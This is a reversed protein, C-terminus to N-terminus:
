FFPVSSCIQLDPIFIRVYLISGTLSSSPPTLQSILISTYVSSSSSFQQLQAQSKTVRHVTTQWAGRDMPNKLCSCQLSNGNGGGTSRRSGPILSLAGAAGANCASEKSSLWQLLGVYVSGHTFCLALPLKIYLETRVPLQLAHM